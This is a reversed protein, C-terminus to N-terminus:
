TRGLILSANSGGFGFSNKLIYRIEMKESKHPVYYLDCNPDPDNLNLTPAAMQKQLMSVCAVVEVIGCAYNLHGIQSKLSSVPIDYAKSGFVEKVGKTELYDNKFTSTGHANIYSIDSSRIKAVSLAKQMASTMGRVDERGDTLRWADNAQGCGLVKAFAEAKNKEVSRRSELVLFGAGEGKVFGSRSKSFPRSVGTPEGKERSLAGIAHYKLLEEARVRGEDCVILIRNNEGLSIRQFAYSIAAIGTICNNVCISTQAQTLVPQGMSYLQNLIVKLGFEPSLNQLNVSEKRHHFKQIDGFKPVGSNSGYIVFDVPRWTKDFFLSSQLMKKILNETEASYNNESLPPFIDPSLLGACSIPVDSDTFIDALSRVGSEGAFMRREFDASAGLPTLCGHATVFVENM